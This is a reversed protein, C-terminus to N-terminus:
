YLSVLFEHFGFMEHCREAELSLSSVEGGKLKFLM